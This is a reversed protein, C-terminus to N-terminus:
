NQYNKACVGDINFYSKPVKVERDFNTRNKKKKM